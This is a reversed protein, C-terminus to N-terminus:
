NGKTQQANELQNKLQELKQLLTDIQSQQEKVANILPVVFLSYRLGFVEGNEGSRDVVDFPLNKQKVLADVEQAIFGIHRETDPEIPGTVKPDYLKGMTIQVAKQRDIFYSVPRLAMVFDLGPANEQVQTKVRGDSLVTWGVQGGISTVSANGVRITNSATVTAGNGIATSNNRGGSISANNGIATNNTGEGINQGARYGIGTNGSGTVFELAQVGVATNNAGTGRSGLARYGVAVLDAGQGATTGELARVGVATVRSGTTNSLAALFGAAVNETGTTNNRLAEVGLATNNSSTNKELALVGFATNSSGITNLNLSFYGGASNSSGTTNSQLAGHGLASNRNGTTNQRLADAGAATNNSGTTNSLLSRAGLATNFNGTTNSRLARSGVGTNFTGHTASTAGAGNTYLVSDGIAVLGGRSANNRLANHGVGVNGIGANNVGANEGFFYSRFIPDLRGSPINNTRFVLATNDTTGIFNTAPNTGSNGTINWPTGSAIGTAIRTWNPAAPTGANYYYGAGGGGGMGANTNYVLLSTAPQPITANDNIGTLTVRPILIGRNNFSVELGASADPTNTGIGVQANANGALLFLCTFITLFHRNVNKLEM